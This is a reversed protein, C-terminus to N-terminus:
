AFPMPARVLAKEMAPLARLGDDLRQQLALRLGPLRDPALDPPVQALLAQATSLDNLEGLLAQADALVATSREVERAPLLSALFAQAYRLKKLALRLAHRGEPGLRRADRAQVRLREHGQRLTERAWPALDPAGARPKARLALLSRTFALTRLAHAPSALLESVRRASQERQAHAWAHVASAQAGPRAEPLLAPLVETALVDRNRAEGLVAAVSRWEAAWHAVWAPDLHDRFLRLGTRLRRLAVRAQHVFEPDPLPAPAGPWCAPAENAQLHTLCALAATQFAHVPAMDPRLTLVDARVPQPVEGAFLAYGREAKSRQSPRLRLADAQWGSPGLVLTHALDLLADVPGDLLELELELIRLRQSGDPQGTAICGDDLAVEIRAGRHRIDWRRRTFDTRFVPVLQWALRDLRAALAADDVLRSFDLPGRPRPAEWESRQSLGGVSRGATKVTLLVRRGVRRERVAMRQARLALGSTDFYTNLLRERRPRTRALLPHVLLRPLDDPHLELKIETEQPM